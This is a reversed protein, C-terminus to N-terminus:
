EAALRTPASTMVGRVDARYRPGSLDADVKALARYVHGMNINDIQFGRMYEDALYRLTDICERITALPLNSLEDM